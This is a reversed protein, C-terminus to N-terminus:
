AGGDSATWWVQCGYVTRGDDLRIRPNGPYAMSGEFPEEAFQLSQMVGGHFRAYVTVEADIVGAVEDATEPDLVRVRQGVLSSM